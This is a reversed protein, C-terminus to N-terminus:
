SGCASRLIPQLLGDPAAADRPAGDKVEGSLNMGGYLRVEEIEAAHRACDLKLRALRSKWQGEYRETRIWLEPSAADEVPRTFVEVQRDKSTRQWTWDMAEIQWRWLDLSTPRALAVSLALALPLM